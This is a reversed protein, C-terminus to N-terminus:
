VSGPWGAIRAWLWWAAYAKRNANLPLSHQSECDYWEGPHADQWASAWNSELSGDGDADYNCGDDAMLEMYNVAGDPDYSEIDAFDFLWKDNERCYRRIQENRSALDGGAGTGALHGTMYVFTVNPFDTELGSMLGLYLDIEAPNPTDAQGCWSWIIVNVDENGATGLCTRTAAEWTERDPSGLDSAGFGSMGDHLELAGGSGDANVSYLGSNGMFRDLSGMGTTLQSGHSTHGYAIVLSAKAKEIWKVPIDRISTATHDIIKSGPRHIFLCGAFFVVSLIIPVIHFVRARLM